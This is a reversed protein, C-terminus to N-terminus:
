AGPCVLPRLAPIAQCVSQPAAVPGPPGLPGAPGRLGTPGRPGPLGRRGRPGRESEASRGSRGRPGRCGEIRCYRRAAARAHSQMRERSPGFVRRGMAACEADRACAIIAAKAARQLRRTEEKETRERFVEAAIRAVEADTRFQDVRQEEAAELSNTYGIVGMAVAGAMLVGIVLAITYLTRRTM